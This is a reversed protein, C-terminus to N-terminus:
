FSIILSGKVNNQLFLVLIIAADCPFTLNVRCRSDKGHIFNCSQNAIVKSRLMESFFVIIKPNLTM